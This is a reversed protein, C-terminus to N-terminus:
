KAKRRASAAPKDALILPSPSEAKLTRVKKFGAEKLWSKMEDFTFTDGHDSHVIMNVAFILPVAPGRRDKNPVFEAIVITGGPALAEFVRALLKRSREEGESHLIHGLAAIQHDRGLDATHIDGEVFSMSEAVGHKTAVRRTVPIVDDWDVATVRVRPSQQAMAIGWVGSGAAIDLVSVPKNGKKLLAAAATRAAAYSNNFIDEVFDAFFKAGQGRDNASVAPHGTRVIEALKLWNPIITQSGHKILGGMFAPKGCVLFAASEPTLSYKDGRRQLLGIGVLGNVLARLGRPSAGTAEALQELSHSNRDLVDFVKNRIAADIMLPPAYGWALQMIREPTVHKATRVQKRKQKKKTAAM